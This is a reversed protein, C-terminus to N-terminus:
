LIVYRQAELALFAPTAVIHFYHCLNMIHISNQKYEVRPRGSMM